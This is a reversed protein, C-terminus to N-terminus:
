EDKRIRKYNRKFDKEARKAEIGSPNGPEHGSTYGEVEKSFWQKAKNLLTFKAHGLEHALIKALRKPSLDESLNIVQSKELVIMENAQEETIPVRIKTGNEQTELITYGEDNYPNDDDNLDERGSMNHTVNGLETIIKTSSNFNIRTVRETQEQSDLINSEVISNLKTLQINYEIPSNNM